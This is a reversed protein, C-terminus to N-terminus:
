HRPVAPTPDPGAAASLPNTRAPSKARLEHIAVKARKGLEYLASMDDCRVGESAIRKTFEILRPFERRKDELTLTAANSYRIQGTQLRALFKTCSLGEAIASARVWAALGADQRWEARLGMAVCVFQQLQLTATLQQREAVSLRTLARDPDTAGLPPSTLAERFAEVAPLTRRALPEPLMSLLGEADAVLARASRTLEPRDDRAILKGLEAMAQGQEDIAQALPRLDFPQALTGSIPNAFVKTRARAMEQPLEAMIRKLRHCSRNFARAYRMLVSWAEAGNEDQYGAQECENVLALNVAPWCRPMQSLRVFENCRLMLSDDADTFDVHQAMLSMRDRHEYKTVGHADLTLEQLIWGRSRSEVDMPLVTALSLLANIRQIMQKREQECSPCNPRRDPHEANPVMMFDVWVGFDEPVHAKIRPSREAKPKAFFKDVWDNVKEKVKAWETKPCGSQKWDHSVLILHAWRRRPRLNECHVPEWEELANMEQLSLTPEDPTAELLELALPLKAKEWQTVVQSDQSLEDPPQNLLESINVLGVPGAENPCYTLFTCVHAHEPKSRGRTEEIVCIAHRCVQAKLPGLNLIEYAVTRTVALLPRQAITSVRTLCPDALLAEDIGTTWLSRRELEAEVTNAAESSVERPERRWGFSLELHPRECQLCQRAGSSVRVNVLQSSNM